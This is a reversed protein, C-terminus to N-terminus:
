LKTNGLKREIPSGECSNPDTAMTHYPTAGDFFAFLGIEYLLIFSFM